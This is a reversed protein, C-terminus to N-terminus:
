ARGRTSTQLLRNWKKPLAPQIFKPSVELGWPLWPLMLASDNKLDQVLQFGIFDM